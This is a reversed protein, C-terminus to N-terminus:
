PKMAMWPQGTAVVSPTTEHCDVCLDNYDGATRGETPYSYGVGGGNASNEIALISAFGDDDSALYIKNAADYSGGVTTNDWTSSTAAGRQAGHVLHCSQCTVGGTGYGTLHTGIGEDALISNGGAYTGIGMDYQVASVINSATLGAREASEIHIDAQAASNANATTGVPHTGTGITNGLTKNRTKEEHCYECFAVTGNYMGSRLYDNGYGYARNANGVTNTSQGFAESHPNHCSSCEIQVSTPGSATAQTGCYPWVNAQAFQSAGIVYNQRTNNGYINDDILVHNVKGTNYVDGSRLVGKASANAAVPSRTNGTATYHCSGCLNGILGGVATQGTGPTPWLRDGQSVHPIHCYSCMGRAAGGGFGTLAGGSQFDHITNAIGAFGPVAFALVLVLSLTVILLKKV